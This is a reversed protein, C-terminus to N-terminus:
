AVRTGRPDPRTEKARHRLNQDRHARFDYEHRGFTSLLYSWVVGVAPLIIKWLPAEDVLSSPDKILYGRTYLQVLSFSFLAALFFGRSVKGFSIDRIGPLLVSYFRAAKRRNVLIAQRKQRLLAEVVRESTVGAIAGACEQCIRTDRESNCCNHCTLRGCNGCQFTLEAPKVLRSLAVAMVLSVVLIWAGTSRPFRTFPRLIQDLYDVSSTKGEIYAARWLQLNTFTKSLVLAHQLADPTYSAKVAEIGNEAALQLAISSEKMLLTKIYAQALSYQGVPDLPEIGQATRYGEIAKGYRGQLFYVNGLNIYGSAEGPRLSIARFFFDAARTYEGNRQHVLGLATNKEPELGDVNARELDRILRHDGPDDNARAMLSTLSGPDALPTFPKLLSGFLGLIVFPTFLTIVLLKERRYMFVWCVITLYALATIVGPAILLPLVLLLYSTFRPAAARFRSRLFEQVKHAAFPFYKFAFAVWVICSTLFLVYPIFVVANVVLHRQSSFDKWMAVFAQVLYITSDIELQRLKIASLTFYADAYNPYYRVAENLKKEAAATNGNRLEAIAERYALRALVPLTRAGDRIETQAYRAINAGRDALATGAGSVCVAALLAICIARTCPGYNDM